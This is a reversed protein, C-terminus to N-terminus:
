HKSEVYRALRDLNERWFLDTHTVWDRFSALTQYNPGYVRERGVKKVEVLQAAQLVRLHKSIAPFSVAYSSAIAGAKLTKKRVLRMLIDHRTQDSLASCVKATADSYKVM